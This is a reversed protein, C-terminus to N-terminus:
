PGGRFTRTEGSKAYSSSLAVKGLGIETTQAELYPEMRHIGGRASETNDIPMRGWADITFAVTYTEPAGRRMAACFDTDRKPWFRKRGMYPM